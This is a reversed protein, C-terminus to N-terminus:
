VVYVLYLMYLLYLLYLLYIYYIIDFKVKKDLVEIAETFPNYRVSYPRKLTNAFDRVKQQADKFSDAVFYIKLTFYIFFRAPSTICHLTVDLM